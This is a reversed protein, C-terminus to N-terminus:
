KVTKKQLPTKKDIFVYKGGWKTTCIRIYRESIRQNELYKILKKVDELQIGNRFAFETECVYGLKSYGNYMCYTYGYTDKKVSDWIKEVELKASEPLTPYNMDLLKQILKDQEKRMQYDKDRSDQIRKEEAKEANVLNEMISELKNTNQEIMTIKQEAEIKVKDYYDTEM